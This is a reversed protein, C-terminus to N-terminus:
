STSGYIASFSRYLVPFFKQLSVKSSTELFDHATVFVIAEGMFIAVVLAFWSVVRALCAPHLLGKLNEYTM